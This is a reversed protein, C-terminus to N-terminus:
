TPNILKRAHFQEVSWVENLNTLKGCPSSSRGPQGDQIPPSPCFHSLVAPQLGRALVGARAAYGFVPGVPVELQHEM